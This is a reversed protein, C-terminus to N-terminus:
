RMRVRNKQNNDKLYVKSKQWGMNNGDLFAEDDELDSEPRSLQKNFL